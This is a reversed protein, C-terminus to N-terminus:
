KVGSGNPIKPRGAEFHKLTWGVKRMRCGLATAARRTLGLSTAVQELNKSENWTRAVQEYDRM